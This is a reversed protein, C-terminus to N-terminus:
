GLQEALERVAEDLLTHGQAASASAPDGLVGNPSVARVGSEILSPMLEEVPTTPGAEALELRVRDPHLALM